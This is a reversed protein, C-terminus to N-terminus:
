GGVATWLSASQTERAAQEFAAPARVAVANILKAAEDVAHDHNFPEKRTATGSPGSASVPVMEGARALYISTATSLLEARLQERDKM